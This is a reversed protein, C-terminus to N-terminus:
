GALREAGGALVLFVGLLYTGRQRRSAEARVSRGHTKEAAFDPYDGGIHHLNQHRRAVDFGVGGPLDLTVDGGDELAVERGLPLDVIPRLILDLRATERLAIQAADALDQRLLLADLRAVLREIIEEILDDLHEEVGGVDLLDERGIVLHAPLHRGDELLVHGGVVLQRVLDAALHLM